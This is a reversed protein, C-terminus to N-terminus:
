TISSFLLRREEENLVGVAEIPDKVYAIYEKLGAIYRQEGDILELIKM